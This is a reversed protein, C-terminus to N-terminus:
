KPGPASRRGTHPPMALWRWGLQADDMVVDTYLGAGRLGAPALDPELSLTDSARTMAHPALSDRGALLDYGTLGIRLKWPEVRDGRYLPVVFRVPRALSPAMRSVASRERLAERVLGIRAQELYRLGGHLMHSSVSSAGSMLDRREVLAVTLGRRAALRAVGAGTIGGGIVALDV